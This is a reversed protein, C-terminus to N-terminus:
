QRSPCLTASGTVLDRRVLPIATAIVTQSPGTWMMRLTLGNSMSNAPNSGVPIGLRSANVDSLLRAACASM